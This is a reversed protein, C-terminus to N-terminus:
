RKRTALKVCTEDIRRRRTERQQAESIWAILDRRETSSLANWRTKAKANVKLATHLDFPVISFCCPRRKGAALRSPVSEVRRKRTESQKASDIWSIFDRRALPTLDLWRATANPAAALVDRLDAPMQPDRKRMAKM